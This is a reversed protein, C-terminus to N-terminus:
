DSPRQEGTSGCESSGGLRGGGGGGGGGSALRNLVKFRSMEDSSWKAWVPAGVIADEPKSPMKNKKEKDLTVGFM